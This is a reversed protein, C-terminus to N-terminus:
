GELSARIDALTIMLTMPDLPSPDFGLRHYFAKAEDDVAHVLVGRIGIEDAAHLIRRGADQLLARGLGQGHYSRDVALRGLIVVPVPDPMNRKLKGTAEKVVVAGSALSYCAIVRDGFCVVYTRSAGGFQNRLARRKLWENLSTKGCNFGDISHHESIPIPTSLTM